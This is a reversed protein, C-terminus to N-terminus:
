SILFATLFFYFNTIASTLIVIRFGLSLKKYKKRYNKILLFFLFPLFDLSYRYGLQRAGIGYYLFIPISIVVITAILIKSLKDRYTLRFLYLFIPSTLLISMGWPDAKIFPFKLVHSINERFIPVPAALLFYYINGPIHVKDLIGFTRAKTHPELNIATSYGTEFINGFRSWNYYGLFTLALSFPIIIKLLYRFKSIKYSGKTDSNLVLIPFLVSGLLSTRTAVLMGSLIGSLVPAMSNLYGYILLFLFLSVITHAIFGPWLAVGVFVTSFCFAFALFLSDKKQYSLLRSIKFCFFFVVTILFPQLYGSYFTLNFLNSIFVFPILLIAPFPGHPSYYKGNFFTTDMWSNDPAELFFSKGQLFSNALLSFYENGIAFNFVFVITFFFIIFPTILKNM